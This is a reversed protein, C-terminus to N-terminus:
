EFERGILSRRSPSCIEDSSHMRLSAGSFSESIGHWCAMLPAYVSLFAAAHTNVETALSGEKIALTSRQGALGRAVAVRGAAGDGSECLTPDDCREPM